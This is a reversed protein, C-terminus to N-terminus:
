AYGRLVSLTFATDVYDKASGKDFSSKGPLFSSVAEIIQVMSVAVATIGFESPSLLRALILLNVFDIAKTSLRAIM